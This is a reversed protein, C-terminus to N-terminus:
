NIGINITARNMAKDQLTRLTDLARNQLVMLSDPMLLLKEFDSKISQVPKGSIEALQNYYKESTSDRYVVDNLNVAANITYLDVLINVIEDPTMSLEPLDKQKKSCSFLFLIGICCSLSKTM